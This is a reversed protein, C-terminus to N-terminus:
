RQSMEDLKKVFWRFYLSLALTVAVSVLCLLLALRERVAAFRAGCYIAFFAGLSIASGILVRHVMYLQSGPM